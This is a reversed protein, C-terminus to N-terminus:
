DKRCMNTLIEELAGLVDAADGVAGYDAYKFIEAERDTNIAFIKRSRVIGAVHQLAGSIGVAMYLEPAVKEGTQGVHEFYSRRGSQYVPRTCAVAGDLIGALSEILEWSRTDAGMGGSIVVRADKLSRHAPLLRENLVAYGPVVGAPADTGRVHAYLRGSFVPVVGPGTTENKNDRRAASLILEALEGYEGREFFRVPPKEPPVVFGYFTKQPRFDGSQPVTEPVSRMATMMERMSPIKIGSEPFIDKGCSLILPGEAQLVQVSSDTKREMSFCDEALSFDSIGDLLPLGSLHSLWRPFEGTAYDWSLAGCLVLDFDGGKIFQAASSAACFADAPITDIRVVRGAGMARAMNLSRVVDPGGVCLVTVEAEPVSLAKSLTQRDSPNLVLSDASVLAGDGGASPRVVSYIDPVVSVTVLIKM